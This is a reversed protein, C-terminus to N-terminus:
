VSMRTRLASLNSITLFKYGIRPQEVYSPEPAFEALARSLTIPFFDIPNPQSFLQGFMM